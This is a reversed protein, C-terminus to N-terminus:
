TKTQIEDLFEAEANQSPHPVISDYMNVFIYIELLLANKPM